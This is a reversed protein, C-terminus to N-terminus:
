TGTTATGVAFGDSAQHRGQLAQELFALSRRCGDRVRAGRDVHAYAVYPLTEGDLCWSSASAGKRHRGIGEWVVSSPAVAIAAGVSRNRSAVLLATPSSQWLMAGLRRHERAQMNRLVKV